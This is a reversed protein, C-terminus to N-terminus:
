NKMFRSQFVVDGGNARVFYIGNALNEVNIETAFNQQLLVKGTIDLIEISSFPIDETNKFKLITTVPNPYVMINEKVAIDDLGLTPCSVSTPSSKATQTNDGLQGGINNGWTFLSGDSKIAVTHTIKSSVFVWSNNFTNERTPTLTPGPATPSLPTGIGLQGTANGGWSWLTGDKKIVLTHQHGKAIATAENFAVINIPSTKPSTTGDGLQGTANSGWTWFTGNTKLGVGHERSALVVSWDTDSGIRIPVHSYSPTNIGFRASSNKGWAWLEGNKNIGLSHETGASVFSWDTAIGIQIPTNKDSTSNDGLQGFANDGWAWLTGNKKIALSFEDGASIFEWDTDSGIQQPFNFYSTSTGVGVQGDLNRGWAWLTGDTKIALNHANGASIKVWNSETGIQKPIKNTITTNEGTGLQGQNNRGWSWLTGGDKLGITHVGGTSVEKWCQAQLLFPCLFYFLLIKRM